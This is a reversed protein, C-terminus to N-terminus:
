PPEHQRRIAEDTQAQFWGTGFGSRAAWFYLWAVWTWGVSAFFLIVLTSEFPWGQTWLLLCRGIAVLGALGQVAWFGQVLISPKERHRIWTPEGYFPM